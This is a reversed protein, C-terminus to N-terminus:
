QRCTAASSTSSNLAHTVGTTISRSTICDIKFVLFIGRVALSAPYSLRTLCITPNDSPRTRSKTVEHVAACCAGRDMPNGLCFHWFPNGNGEGLSSGSGPIFDADGANAPTHKVVSGGPLGTLHIRPSLNPSLQVLAFSVQHPSLTLHHPKHLTSPSFFHPLCVCISCFSTTLHSFCSTFFSLQLSLKTLQSCLLIMLWCLFMFLSCTQLSLFSPGKLIHCLISTPCWTQFTCSHCAFTFIFLLFALSLKMLPTVQMLSARTQHSSSIFDDFFSTDRRLLITHPLRSFLLTSPTPHLFLIFAPGFFSM